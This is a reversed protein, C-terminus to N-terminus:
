FIEATFVELVTEPSKWDDPELGAKVCTESLFTERDWDHEVPVQPLLVGSLNGRSVVLGHRGVLVRNPDTIKQLPSLVTIELELKDVEKPEVPIFRHDRLAASEAMEWVAEIL